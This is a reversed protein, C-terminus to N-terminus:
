PSSVCSLAEAAGDDDEATDSSYGSQGMGSVDYAHDNVSYILGYRNLRNMVWLAPEGDVNAAVM